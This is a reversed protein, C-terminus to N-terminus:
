NTHATALTLPTGRAQYGYGVERAEALGKRIAATAWILTLDELKPNPKSSAIHLEKLGVCGDPFSLALVKAPDKVVASFKGVCSAAGPLEASALLGQLREMAVGSSYNAAPRAKGTADEIMTPAILSSLMLMMNFAQARAPAPLALIEQEVNDLRAGPTPKVATKPAGAKASSGKKAPAPRSGADRPKASKTAAAKPPKQEVKKALAPGSLLAFLCLSAAVKCRASM